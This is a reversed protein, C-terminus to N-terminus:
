KIKAQNTMEWKPRREVIVDRQLGQGPPVPFNEQFWEFSVSLPPQTAGTATNNVILFPLRLWCFGKGADGGTQRSLDRWLFLLARINFRECEKLAWLSKLWSKPPFSVAAARLTPATQQDKENIKENRTFATHEHARTFRYTATRFHILCPQKNSSM